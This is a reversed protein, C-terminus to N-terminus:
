LGEYVFRPTLKDKSQALKRSKHMVFRRYRASKAVALRVHDDRTIALKERVM